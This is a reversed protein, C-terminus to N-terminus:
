ISQFSKRFYRTNMFCKKKEQNLNISAYFFQGIKHGRGFRGEPELGWVGSIPRRAWGKAAGFLRGVNQALNFFDCQTFYLSILVLCSNRLYAM